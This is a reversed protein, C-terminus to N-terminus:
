RVSKRIRQLRRDRGVDLRIPAEAYARRSPSPQATAPSSPRPRARVRDGMGALFMFLSGRSFTALTARMTSSNASHCALAWSM